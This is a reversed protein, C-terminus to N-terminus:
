NSLEDLFSRAMIRGAADLEAIKEQEEEAQLDYDILAEALKQVDNADYNDGYENELLEEAASAYKELVEVREQLEENVESEKVMENYTDILSM